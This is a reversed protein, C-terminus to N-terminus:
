SSLSTTASPNEMETTTLNDTGAGGPRFENVRGHVRVLDGVAVGPAAGRFVLVGDSTADDADPTPDTMWFSLSRVATVVGEVGFM